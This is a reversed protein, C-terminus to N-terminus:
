ATKRRPIYGKGTDRGAGSFFSVLDRLSAARQALQGAADASEGALSATVQTTTDISSVASGVESVGVALERSAASIDGVRASIDTMSSVIQGLAEGSNNVLRVGEAVERNSTEILSTIDRAADSANRALGRVETAVVAFGKGADGARAAEVGANLALLNTQFAITDIVDVIKRIDASRAEIREMAAIADGVVAGGREASEAASHAFGGATEANAANAKVNDSMQEMAASTQEVTAAQHEARASLDRANDAIAGTDSAITDATSLIRAVLDDLRQMTENVDSQLRAFQGRYRGEMRQSLDGQVIGHLVQATDALGTEVTTLIANMGTALTRFHTDELTEAMRVDFHGEEARAVVRSFDTAFAEAVAARAATAEKEQEAIKRAEEALQSQRAAAAAHEETRTRAREAEAELERQRILATRLEDVSDRLVGVEDRAPWQPAEVSLDGALLSRMVRALVVLRQGITRQLMRYAVAFVLILCLGALAGCSLAIMRMDRVSRIGQAIESHVARRAEDALATFASFTADFVVDASALTEARDQAAAHRREALASLTAIEMAITRAEPLAPLGSM